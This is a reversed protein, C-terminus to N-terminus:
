AYDEGFDSGFEFSEDVGLLEEVDFDFGMTDLRRFFAFNAFKMLFNYSQIKIGEMNVENKIYEDSIDVTKRYEAFDQHALMIDMIRDLLEEIKAETVELFSQYFGNLLEESEEMEFVSLLMEAVQRDNIASEIMQEGENRIFTKITVEALAMKYDTNKNKKLMFLVLYNKM